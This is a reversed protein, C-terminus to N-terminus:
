RKIASAAIAGLVAGVALGLVAGAIVANTSSTAVAAQLQDNQARLSVRDRQVEIARDASLWVGPGVLVTGADTALEAREVDVVTVGGDAGFHAPQAIARPTGALWVGILVAICRKM